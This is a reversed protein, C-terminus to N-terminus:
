QATEQLYKAKRKKYYETPYSRHEERWKKKAKLQKNYSNEKFKLCLTLYQNKCKKVCRKCDPNM